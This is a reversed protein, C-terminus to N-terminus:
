DALQVAQIAGAETRLAVDPQLVSNWAFARGLSKPGRLRHSASLCPPVGNLLQVQMVACLEEAMDAQDARNKSDDVIDKGGNKRRPKVPRRRGIDNRRLRNGYQLRQMSAFRAQKGAEVREASLSMPSFYLDDAPRLSRGIRCILNNSQQLSQVRCGLDIEDDIVM